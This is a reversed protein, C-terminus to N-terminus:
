TSSMWVDGQSSLICLKEASLLDASREELDSNRLSVVGEVVAVLVKEGGKVNFSTGLVEVLADGSSITFPREPDTQIDFYAEGELWAKRSHGPENQLQLRSNRNLRVVSGDSLTIIRQEEESTVYQKM